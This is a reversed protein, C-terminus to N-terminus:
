RIAPAIMPTRQAGRRTRRHRDNSAVV